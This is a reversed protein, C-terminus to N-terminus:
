ILDYENNATNLKYHLTLSIHISDFNESLSMQIVKITDPLKFTKPYSSRLSSIAGSASSVIKPRRNKHHPAAIYM